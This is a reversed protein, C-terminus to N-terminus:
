INPEQVARRAKGGTRGGKSPAARRAASLEAELGAIRAVLDELEKGRAGLAQRAERLANRHGELDARLDAVQLRHGELDNKLDVALGRHGELDSKLDAVVKRHGELDSELATRVEESEGLRRRIEAVLARHGELDRRLDDEMRTRGEVERQREEQLVQAEAQLAACEGGLREVERRLAAAVARHGELDRRLVEAEQRHGALDRRLDRLIEPLRLVGAGGETAQLEELHEALFMLERFLGDAVPEERPAVPPRGRLAQGYRGLLFAANDRTTPFSRAPPPPLPREVAQRLSRALDAVDGRRFLLGDLGPRLVEAIGGVDAGIVPVGGALAELVVFPANEHWLSPAILVDIEALVRPLEEPDFPGRLRIREDGAVKQRLVELGERGESFAAGFLHFEAPLGPLSRFADLALLAGKFPAINGIFGFRRPGARREAPAPRTREPELGYPLHTIRGAPIGNEEFRDLLYRSPAFLGDAALLRERLWPWRNRAVENLRHFSAVEASVGPGPPPVADPRGRGLLRAMELLHQYNGNVEAACQVCRWPDSPGACLRGEFDLMQTRPCLFWYDTLHVFTPLGWTRAEELLDAGLHMVHLVHVVDPRAEALFDRFMKRVVPSRYEATLPEAFVQERRFVRRV